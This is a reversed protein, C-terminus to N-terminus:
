SLTKDLMVFLGDLTGQFGNGHSLQNIKSTVYSVVKFSIFAFKTVFAKTM